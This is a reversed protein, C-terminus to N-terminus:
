EIPLPAPEPASEGRRAPEVRVRRLLPLLLLTSCFITFLLWFDDAFALIQAQQVVERYV